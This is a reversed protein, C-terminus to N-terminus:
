KGKVCRRYAGDWIQRASWTPKSYAFEINRVLIAVVLMSIDDGSLDNTNSSIAWEEVEEMIEQETKGSDRDLAFKETSQAQVICYDILMEDLPGAINLSDLKGFNVRWLEYAKLVHPTVRYGNDTVPVVSVPQKNWTSGAWFGLSLAFFLLGFVRLWIM